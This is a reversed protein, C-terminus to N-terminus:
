SISVQPREETVDYQKKPQPVDTNLYSKYKDSSMIKEADLNACIQFPCHWNYSYRLYLAALLLCLLGM